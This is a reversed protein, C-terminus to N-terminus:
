MRQALSAAVLLSASHTKSPPEPREFAISDAIRASDAASRIQLAGRLLLDRLPHPTGDVSRRFRPGHRTAGSKMLFRPTRLL